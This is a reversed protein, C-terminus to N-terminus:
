KAIRVRFNTDQVGELKGKLLAGMRTMSVEVREGSSLEVYCLVEDVDLEVTDIQILLVGSSADYAVFTRENEVAELKQVSNESSGSTGRAVVAIPQEFAIMAQMQEVQEMVVSVSDKVRQVVVDIVAFVKEQLTKEATPEQDFQYMESLLLYGSESTVDALTSLVCFKQYCEECDALHQLAEMEEEGLPLEEEILEALRYLVEFEVHSMSM